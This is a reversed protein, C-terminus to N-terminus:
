DHHVELDYTVGIRVPNHRITLVETHVVDLDALWRKLGEETEFETTGRSGDHWVVYASYPIYKAM